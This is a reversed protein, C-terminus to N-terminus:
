LSVSDGPLFFISCHNKGLTSAAKFVCFKLAEKLSVSNTQFLINIELRNAGGFHSSM